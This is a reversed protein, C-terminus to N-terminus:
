ETGKSVELLKCTDVSRQSIDANQKNTPKLASNKDAVVKHGLCGILVQMLM